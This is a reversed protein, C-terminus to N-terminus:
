RKKREHYKKCALVRKAELELAELWEATPVYSELTCHSEDVVELERGFCTYWELYVRRYIHRVVRKHVGNGATVIEGTKFSIAM